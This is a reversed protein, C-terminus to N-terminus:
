TTTRTRLSTRLRVIRCHCWSTTTRFSQISAINIISGRRNEVMVRGFRQACTFAGVLNTEIIRRFDEPSEELAAKVRQITRRTNDYADGVRDAGSSSITGLGGARREAIALDTTDNPGMGGQIIPYQIELLDCLATHLM